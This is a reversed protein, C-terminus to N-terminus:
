DLHVAASGLVSACTAKVVTRTYNADCDAAVNCGATLMDILQDLIPEAEVLSPQNVLNVGLMQDILADTIVDRAAPDAFADSTPANFNFGTGFFDERLSTRDVMESCYELALKAIGVQHSSVFTRVDSTSPLQQKLEDFMRRIDSDNPDVGTLEAMTNNIEDFNRLGIEPLPAGAAPVPPQGPDAEVVRNEFEGLVELVLTFADGQVGASKPVVSCLNSLQQRPQDVLASLRAFSQSAVPIQGNVAIRLGEIPIGNPDSTVFTPFCFLYSFADFESVEFEIAGGQPLWSDLTFRLIFKDGIGAQFNQMVQAANLARDHIAVLRIEGKWLRNDTNENGILFTYNANWNDLSAGGFGDAESVLTGNVYTRRGSAQDFTMVVHQLALDLAEVDVSPTGNGSIGGARSRNRFVYAANQQGMTFNRAGTDVSYSVIRAPGTQDLAEPLLWAEITYQQSGTTPDAIRDFLKESTEQSAAAKGSINRIGGGSLWETGTLTLNMLPDVRSTDFATDGSGTKFKYLAIVNTEVRAAGGAGVGENYAVQNSTIDEEVITGGGAGGGGTMGGGAGGGSTNAALANAWQVIAAEMEAANAACDDWCYHGDAELRQVLRSANPNNFDVKQNDVVAMHATDVTPHAISPFGPGLGSHCNTCRAVLIPHVTQGFTQASSVPVTAASTTSASDGDGGGGGGGGCAVLAASLVLSALVKRTRDPLPNSRPYTSNHISTSTTM